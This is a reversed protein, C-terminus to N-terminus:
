AKEVADLAALAEHLEHRCYSDEPRRYLWRDVMRAATIVNELACQPCPGDPDRTLRHHGNKCIVFTMPESDDDPPTTLWRDYGFFDFDSM